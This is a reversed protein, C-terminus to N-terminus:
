LIRRELHIEERIIQCLKVIQEALDKVTLANMLHDQAHVMLLTVETRNGRIEEQIMETQVEHAALLQSSAAEMCAKAGEMDGKGACAVAELASSRAAGSNVVLEMVTLELEERTM